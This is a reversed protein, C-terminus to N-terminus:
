ARVLAGLEIFDKLNALSFQTSRKLVSMFLIETIPDVPDRTFEIHALLNTSHGVPEFTYEFEEHALEVVKYAFRKYPEFAVIEMTEKEDRGLFVIVVSFRTGVGLPGEAIKEISQLGNAWTPMKEWHSFFDWVENVPRNILVNTEIRSM